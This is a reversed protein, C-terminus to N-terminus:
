EAVSATIALFIVDEMLSLNVTIAGEQAAWSDSQLGESQRSSRHIDEGDFHDDYFAVIEEYKEAPYEVAVSYVTESDQSFSSSSTVTGGDPVPVPLEEPIEVDGGIQMESEGDEGSQSFSVGDEQVDIDVDGGGESEAAQEIAEETAREAINEGISGCATVVLALAVVFGTRM